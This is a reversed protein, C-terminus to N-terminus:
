IRRAVKEITFAEIVDGEQFDNFGEVRIGCEFGERSSTAAPSATSPKMAPRIPNSAGQIKSASLITLLLVAVLTAVSRKPM